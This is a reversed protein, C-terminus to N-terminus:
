VRQLRQVSMRLVKARINETYDDVCGRECALDLLRLAETFDGNALQYDAEASYLAPNSSGADIRTRRRASAGEGDGMATLVTARISETYDNACGRERALDLLRLAEDFKGCARQYDAEATYLAPHRSGADIQIRRAASAAPGSQTTQLCASEISVVVDNVAEPYQVRHNALRTLFDHAGSEGQALLCKGVNALYHPYGPSLVLAREFADLARATHNGGERQWCEGLFRWAKHDDPDLQTILSLVQRQEIIPSGRRRLAEDFAWLQQSAWHKNPGLLQTSIESIRAGDGACLLHHLAELAREINPLNVRTKGSLQELWCGAIHGHLLVLGQQQALTIAPSPQWDGADDGDGEYGLQHRLWGAIFGHLYYREQRANSALLCRRDLGDWAAPLNLRDELMDAHDQPIADRYLALTQLLAREGSSLVSEYLERFLFDIVKAEAASHFRTRVEWPSVNHGKAVELMLQTAQPHAQDGNGGGLWQYLAKLQDGKYLWAAESGPPASATLCQALSDKDLGPVQEELSGQGFVGPSTPRERLEFIWLWREGCARKCATFLKGLEEDRWGKPGVWQHALDIWLCAAPVNPYRQGLQSAVSAVDGLPRQPQESTDGLLPALQRFLYDAGDSSSARIRHPEGGTRPDRKALQKIFESKGIGRMGYLVVVTKGPLLKGLRALMADRGFLRIGHPAPMATIPSPAKATGTAENPPNATTPKLADLALVVETRLQDANDFTARVRESEIRQKFRQLAAAGSGTEVDGALMPHKEGMVFLLRPIGRQVARDYELETISLIQGPPVWGYRHGYVGIFVDAKGVKDLCLQLANADTAPWHEMGDPFYGKETCARIVQARHEPLDVSTSSIFATLRTETM